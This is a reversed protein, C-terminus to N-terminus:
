PHSRFKIRSARDSNEEDNKERAFKACAECAAEDDVYTMQDGERIEGECRPAIMANCDSNFQAEFTGGVDYNM